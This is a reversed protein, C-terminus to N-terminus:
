GGWTQFMGILEILLQVHSSNSCMKHMLHRSNAFMSTKTSSNHGFVVIYIYMYCPLPLLNCLYNHVIPFYWCESLYRGMRWICLDLCSNMNDRRFVHSIRFFFHHMCQLSMTLRQICLYSHLQTSINQKWKKWYEPKWCVASFHQTQPWRIMSITPSLRTTHHDHHTIYLLKWTNSLTSIMHSTNKSIMTYLTTYYDNHTLYAIIM